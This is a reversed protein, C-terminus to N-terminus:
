LLDLLAIKLFSVQTAQKCQTVSTRKVSGLRVLPLNEAPNETSLLVKLRNNSDDFKDGSVEKLLDEVLGRMMGM